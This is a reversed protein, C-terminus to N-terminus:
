SNSIKGQIWGGTANVQFGFAGNKVIFDNVLNLIVVQCLTSFNLAKIAFDLLLPLRIKIFNGDDFYCFKLEFSFNRGTPYIVASEASVEKIFYNFRDDPLSAASTAPFRQFLQPMQSVIHCISGASEAPQIRVEGAIDLLSFNEIFGVYYIIIYQYHTACFLVM